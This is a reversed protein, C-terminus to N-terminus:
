GSTVQYLSSLAYVSVARGARVTGLIRFAKEAGVMTSLVKTYSDPQAEMANVQAQIASLRAGMGSQPQQPQQFHQLQQVIVAPQSIFAQPQFTQPLPGQDPAATPMPQFQQAM